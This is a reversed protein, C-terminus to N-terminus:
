AFLSCLAGCAYSGFLWINNVLSDNVLADIGRDKLLHWADKAAQIYPKGFM